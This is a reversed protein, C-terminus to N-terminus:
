TALSVGSFPLPLVTERGDMMAMLTKADSQAQQEALLRNTAIACLVTGLFTFAIPKVMFRALCKLKLQPTSKHAHFVPYKM